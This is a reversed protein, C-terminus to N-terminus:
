EPVYETGAERAENARTCVSNEGGPTSICAACVSAMDDVSTDVLRIVFSVITPIFFICVAAVIRMALSKASSKIADDKSAVVAKGLDIMGLIILIIPIVIKFVLLFYGVMRWINSTDVCFNRPM